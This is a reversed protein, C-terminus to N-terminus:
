PGRPKARHTAPAAMPDEPWPHRPYRGRMEARVLGWSTRWFSPLDGTVQIPRHAPSLLHIVLPVRGGAISPHSATGFLEQVRVPLVPVDGTTYDLPIRSGSAVPMHTPADRDLRARLDWAILSGVIEALPLRKLDALRTLGGLHPLLWDELTALLAEDTVEPWPDGEHRRLFAIRARLQESAKDWPLVMLGQQRIGDLLGEAIRAPDPAPLPRDELVLAGLRTQRRAIVAGTRGDWRVVDEERIRDAFLLDLDGRVLPAALWIKGAPGGDLDAIALFDAAMLPDTEPLSAGRGNVLVFGGQARRRAVRDPYALAVVLGTEASSMAAPLSLRRRWDSALQRARALAGRDVAATERGGLMVDVRSRLDGDGRLIDRETLLAAIVCALGGLDIASASLIMHALRPHLPLAAMASGHRTIRGDDEVAALATLLDRAQALAPAPPPTLWALSEPAAGWAALDLALPALDAEAIEPPPYPQLARDEAESWLRYCVGPELRGARGRRQASEAATTRVTVLRDFGSRLDFRNRRAYGGDIVVRVGDITLSTEAISTALVVKRRGPAAPRIAQDQAAAPLAGYLPTIDVSDPVAGSLLAMTRRIEGEGPLFALISGTEEVLAQRVAAAMSVPLPEGTKVAIFRTEVPFMRGESRIVPAGGMLGAVAVGDLTASMVLLRLDDRLAAQVELCLALGLDAVLSREHFEDFIVLGVGKLEPDAALRRTLIGETVVEIRTARSVKSEQRVRYGVTEGAAEGIM